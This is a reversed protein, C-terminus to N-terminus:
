LAGEGSLTYRGTEGCVGSRLTGSGVPHDGACELAAPYDQAPWPTGLGVEVVWNEGLRRVDVKGTADVWMEPQTRGLVYTGNHRACVGTLGSVIMTITEAGDCVPVPPEEDEDDDPPPPTGGGGGGSLYEDCPCEVSVQVYRVDCPDGKRWALIMTVGRVTGLTVEGSSNVSALGINLVRYEMQNRDAGYVTLPFTILTRSCNVRVSKPMVDWYDLNLNDLTQCDLTM